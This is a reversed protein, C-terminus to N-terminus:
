LAPGRPYRDNEDVDLDVGQNTIRRRVKRTLEEALGLLHQRRSALALPDMPDRGSIKELVPAYLFSVVAAGFLTVASEVDLNAAAIYNYPGALHRALADIVVPDGDLVGRAVLRPFEPDAALHDLYISTMRRAVDRPDADTLGVQIKAVLGAMAEDIVAAWLQDKSGFHYRVLAANAHADSAIDRLSAGAYGHEAFAHRAAQLLARRTRDGRVLRGDDEMTPM